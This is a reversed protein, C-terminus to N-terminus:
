PTADFSTTRLRWALYPLAMLSFLIVTNVFAAAIGQAGPHPAFFGMAIHGLGRPVETRSAQIRATAGMWAILALGLTPWAAKIRQRAAILTTAWGVLIPACLYYFKGAQFYINQLGYVPGKVAGGFPTNAGPLFITWGCWLYVCALFYAAALLFLPMLGFAAWPMRASWSCFQPKGIMAAALLDIAGLRALALSEADARSHGARLEEAILDNLHDALERLYRRVHRPAVGARLLRERLEAFPNSM